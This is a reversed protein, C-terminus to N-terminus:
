FWSLERNKIGNHELKICLIEHDVTDFVKKLDVFVLGVFQGHDLGSYWDDTNKLLCTVTSFLRLFDSQDGSFLGNKKM